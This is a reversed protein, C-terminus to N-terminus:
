LWVQYHYNDGELAKILLGLDTEGGRMRERESQVANIIQQLTLSQLHETQRLKKIDSHSFGRRKLEYILSKENEDLGFAQQHKPDAAIQHNHRWELSKVTWAEKSGNKHVKRTLVIRGNCCTKKTHQNPRGGEEVTKRTYKSDYAGYHDCHLELYNPVKADKLNRKNCYGTRAISISQNRAQLEKKLQKYVLELSDIPVADGDEDVCCFCYGVHIPEGNFLPADCDYEDFQKRSFSVLRDLISM